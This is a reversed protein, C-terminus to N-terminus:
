KLKGLKRTTSPNQRNIYKHTKMKMKSSQESNTLKTIVRIEWTTAPTMKKVYPHQVFYCLQVNRQMVSMVRSLDVSGEKIRGM